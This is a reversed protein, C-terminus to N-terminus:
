VLKKDCIQLLESCTNFDSEVNSAIIVTRQNQQSESLLTQYFQIGPKDLTITPEDLIVLSSKSCLALALKVRQQMGSSFYKITKRRHKKPFGLLDTIQEKSIHFPRFKEYFTLLEQLSFDPIPDVYPAAYSVFKYISDAEIHNKDVTYLIQGKSPSMFGVIMKMLTSKGVGNAGSIGYHKNDEFTYNIEKLIWDFTYRKSVNTLEIRM